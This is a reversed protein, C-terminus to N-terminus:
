AAKSFKQHCCLKLWNEQSNFCQYRSARTVELCFIVPWSILLRVIFRLIDSSWFRIGTVGPTHVKIRVPGPKKWVYVMYVSLAVEQPNSDDEIVIQLLEFAEASRILYKKSLAELESRIACNENM